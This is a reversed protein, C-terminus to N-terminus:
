NGEEEEVIFNYITRYCKEFDDFERRRSYRQPLSTILSEISSESLTDISKSYLVVELNHTQNKVTLTEYGAVMDDSFVIFPYAPNTLYIEEKVSIGTSALWSKFDM